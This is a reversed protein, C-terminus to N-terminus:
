FVDKIITWIMIYKVLIVQLLSDHSLPKHYPSPIGVAQWAKHDLIRFCPLLGHAKLINTLQIVLSIEPVHLSGAWCGGLFPMFLHIFCIQTSRSAWVSRCFQCQWLTTATTCHKNRQHSVRIRNPWSLSYQSSAYINFADKWCYKCVQLRIWLYPILVVLSSRHGLGITSVQVTTCCYQFLVWSLQQHPVSSIWTPSWPESPFSGIAMDAMTGSGMQRMNQKTNVIWPELYEEWWHPTGTEKSTGREELVGWRPKLAMAVLDTQGSGWFKIFMYFIQKLPRQLVMACCIIERLSASEKIEQKLRDCFGKPNRGSSMVGEIGHNKEQM